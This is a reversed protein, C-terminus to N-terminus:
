PNALSCKPCIISGQTAIHRPKGLEARRRISMVRTICNSRTLKRLEIYGSIVALTHNGQMDTVAIYGSTNKNPIYQLISYNMYIFPHNSFTQLGPYVVSSKRRRQQDNTFIHEIMEMAIKRHDSAAGVNSLRGVTVEINETCLIIYVHECLSFVLGGEAGPEPTSPGISDGDNNLEPIGVALQEMDSM